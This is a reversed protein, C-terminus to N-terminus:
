HRGGVRSAWGWGWGVGLRGGLRLNVSIAGSGTLSYHYQDSLAARREGVLRLWPGNPLDSQELTADGGPGGGEGGGECVTV